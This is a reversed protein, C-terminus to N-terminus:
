VRERCSARGIQINLILHQDLNTGVTTSTQDIVPTAATVNVVEKAAPRMTVDIRTDGGLAVATTRTAAAFGSLTVTVDYNGPPLLPLKYAGASDTTAQQRGQLAAGHAEVTVGPLAGGNEDTVRGSISGTTQASLPFAASLFAGLVLVRGLM